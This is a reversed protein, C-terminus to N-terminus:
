PLFLSASGRPRHRYPFGGQVARLPHLAAAGSEGRGRDHFRLAASGTATRAMADDAIVAQEDEGEGAGVHVPDTRPLSLVFLGDDGVIRHRPRRGSACGQAEVVAAAAFGPRGREM